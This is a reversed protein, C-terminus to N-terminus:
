EDRPEKSSAEPRAAFDRRLADLLWRERDRVRDWRYSLRTLAGTVQREADATSVGHRQFLRTLRPQLRDILRRLDDRTPECSSSMNM